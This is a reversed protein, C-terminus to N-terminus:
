LCLDGKCVIIQYLGMDTGAQCHNASFYDSSSPSIGSNRFSTLRLIRVPKGASDLVPRIYMSKRGYRLHHDRAERYQALKVLGSSGSADVLIKLFPNFINIAQRGRHRICEFLIKDLQGENSTNIKADYEFPDLINKAKMCYSNKKDISGVIVEGCAAKQIYEMESFDFTISTVADTDNKEDFECYELENRVVPYLHAM